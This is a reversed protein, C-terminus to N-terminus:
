FKYTSLLNNTYEFVNGTEEFGLSFSKSEDLVAAFQVLILDEGRLEYGSIFHVAFPELRKNTANLYFSEYVIREKEFANFGEFLSTPLSLRFEVYSIETEDSYNESDENFLNKLHAYPIYQCRWINGDYERELYYGNDPNALWREAEAKSFPKGACSSFVAGIILLGIVRVRRM